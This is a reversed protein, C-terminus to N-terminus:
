YKIYKNDNHRKYVTNRSFIEYDSCSCYVCFAGNVLIGLLSCLIVTGKKKKQMYTQQLIVIEHPTPPTYDHSVNNM